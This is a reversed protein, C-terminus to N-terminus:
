KTFWNNIKIFLDFLFGLVWVNFVLSITLVIVIMEPTLEKIGNQLATVWLPLLKILQLSTRWIMITFLVIFGIRFVILIWFKLDNLIIKQQNNFKM